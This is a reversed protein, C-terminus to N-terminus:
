TSIAPLSFHVTAGVGITGEAWTRGGHREIIRRVNALGIGTGEFESARHLRQFVGFLKGSHKMDFGAGNDQVFCEVEAGNQRSGVTIAANDRSRTYKIANSLLNLWVQKLLAADGDVEPLDGVSWALKRNGIEPLLEERADLVLRQLSVRHKRLEVRGNRSFALLDDILHIMKEASVKINELTKFEHAVPRSAIEEKLIGAFSIIHRLPARLDHAVSYSFTELEKNKMELEQILVARTEALKRVLRADAAEIERQLLEERIRQNEDEFQKRRIQAQVRAKLVEMESSKAIFDDAGAGLGDLLASRDEIATLMILPIDQLAPTSKIRRCAERGGMGPMLLDLLICDVHQTALLDLAIEGSHAMIVEFGAAQLSDALAHLYTESDDVALIRKSVPHCSSDTGNKQASRQLMAVLRTLIIRVGEEKRVFSDAGADLARLEAGQDESPTLLLCPIGRLALDLRIRRILLIGGIGPLVGDVIIAHPCFTAAVRLGDDQSSAATVTYGAKECAEGLRERFAVDDDLILIRSPPTRRVAAPTLSSSPNPVSQRAHLLAHTRAILFSSDYPKGVYEDAGAILSDDRERVEAETSLMLVIPAPHCNGARIERLLTMGDGDPLEVDLVIVTPLVQMLNLRAEALSGCAVTNFGSAAFVAELDKRVTLSDDVILVTETM